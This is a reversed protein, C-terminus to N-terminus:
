YWVNNWLYRPPALIIIKLAKKLERKGLQKITNTFYKLPEDLTSSTDTSHELAMTQGRVMLATCRKLASMAIILQLDREISFPYISAVFCDFLIM